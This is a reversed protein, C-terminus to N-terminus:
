LAPGVDRRCSTLLLSPLPVFYAGGVVILGGPSRLLRVVFAMADWERLEGSSPRWVWNMVGILRAEDAVQQEKETREAGGPLPRAPCGPWPKVDAISTFPEPRPIWSGDLCANEECYKSTSILPTTSNVTPTLSPESHTDTRWENPSFIWHDPKTQHFAGLFLVATLVAAGFILAKRRPAM